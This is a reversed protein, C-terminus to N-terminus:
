RVQHDGYVTCAGGQRKGSASRSEHYNYVYTREYLAMAARMPRQCPSSLLETAARRSKRGEIVSLVWWVEERCGDGGELEGGSCYAELFLDTKPTACDDAEPMDESKPLGGGLVLEPLENKPLRGRAERVVGPGWGDSKAFVATVEPGDRKPESLLGEAGAGDSRPLLGFVDPLRKEIVWCGGALVDKKLPM